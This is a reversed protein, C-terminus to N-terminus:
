YFGQSERLAKREAVRRKFRIEDRRREGGDVKHGRKDEWMGETVTVRAGGHKMPLAYPGAITHVGKVKYGNVRVMDSPSVEDIKKGPPVNVVHRKRVLPSKETVLIKLEASGNEVHKFDGGIGFRGERFRQRWRLLYRRTRPPEVGLERLQDSTLTFLAEWTPFKSAHQKLGRGILTLFTEVDPVFPIPAPVLPAQPQASKHAWRAQARLGPLGAVSPAACPRFLLGLASQIRQSKM